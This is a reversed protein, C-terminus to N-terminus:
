WKDFDLGEQYAEEMLKQNVQETNDVITSFLMKVKSKNIGCYKAIGNNFYFKVMEPLKRSEFNAETSGVLPMWMIKKPNWQKNRGYAFGHNFVRDIYGKLMAPMNFWYMPFLMVISDYKILREQEKVVQESYHGDHGSWYPDDQGELIPDFKLKYLDLVDVEHGSEKLGKEVQNKLEYTLSAERYHAVIILVKM